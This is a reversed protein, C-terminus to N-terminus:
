RVAGSELRARWPLWFRLRRRIHRGTRGFPWASASCPRPPDDDSGSPQAGPPPAPRDRRTRSTGRRTMASGVASTTGTPVLTCDRLSTAAPPKVHQRAATRASRNRDRVSRAAARREMYRFTDAMRRASCEPAHAEEGHAQSLSAANEAYAAALLQGDEDSFVAAKPEAGTLELRWDYGEPEHRTSTAQRHGDTPRSRYQTEDPM